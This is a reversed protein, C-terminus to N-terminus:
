YPSAFLTVYVSSKWASANAYATAFRLLQNAPVANGVYSPNTLTFDANKPNHLVNVIDTNIALTGVYAPDFTFEFENTAMERSTGSVMDHNIRIARVFVEAGTPYNAALTTLPIDVNVTDAGTGTVAVTEEIAGTPSTAALTHYTNILDLFRDATTAGALNSDASRFEFHVEEGGVRIIDTAASYVSAALTAPIVPVATVHVGDDYLVHTGSTNNTVTVTSM